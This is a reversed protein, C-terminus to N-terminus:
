SQIVAKRAMEQLARRDEPVYESQALRLILDSLHREESTFLVQLLEVVVAEIEKEKDGHEAWRVLLREFEEELLNRFAGPFLLLQSYM